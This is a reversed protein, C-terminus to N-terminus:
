TVVRTIVLSTKATYTYGRYVSLLSLPVDEADSLVCWYVKISGKMLKRLCCWVLTISGENYTQLPLISVRREVEATCESRFSQTSCLSSNSSLTAIGKSPSSPFTNLYVTPIKHPYIITLKSTNSFPLHKHIHSHYWVPQTRERIIVCRCIYAMKTYLNGYIFIQAM